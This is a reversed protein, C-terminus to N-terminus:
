TITHKMPVSTTQPPEESPHTIGCMNQPTDRYTEDQKMRTRHHTVTHKMPIPAPHLQTVTHKMPIPAPQLPKNISHTMCMHETTDRLTKMTHWVHKMIHQLTIWLKDHMNWLTNYRLEYHTMCTGYHTTTYNMTHWLHKMTHRLTIWLTDYHLEYHTM